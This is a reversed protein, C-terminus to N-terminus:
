KLLENMKVRSIPGFYGTQPIRYRQQFLKVGALTKPGFNGYGGVVSDKPMCGFYILCDQLIKVEDDNLGYYLNNNFIHAPKQPQPIDPLDAVVSWCEFPMYTSPVYFKGNDGWEYGWSNQGKIYTPDYGIGMTAHGWTVERPQPPRIYATQWGGNSGTFGMLVNNHAYLAQKLAQPTCDVQVYGGIRYKQITALDNPDGGLPMAGVNKLVQLVTRFYTGEGYPLGDIKKCEKYLWDPDFVVLGGEEHEKEEKISTGTYAACEPTNGQNKQTLPYPELYTDPIPTELNVVASLPIDRHDIPSPLLKLNKIDPILTEM